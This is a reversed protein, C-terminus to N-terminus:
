NSNIKEIFVFFSVYRKLKLCSKSTKQCRFSIFVFFNIIPSFYTFYVQSSSTKLPLCKVWIAIIQHRQKEKQTFQGKECISLILQVFIKSSCRCHLVLLTWEVDDDHDNGCNLSIRPVSRHCNEHLISSSPWHCIM